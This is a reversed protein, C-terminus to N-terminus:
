PRCGSTPTRKKPAPKPSNRRSAASSTGCAALQDDSVKAQQRAQALLSGMEQNDRDLANARDQLQQNQRSMATQQQESQSLRGKLVMANDACGAVIMAIRLM